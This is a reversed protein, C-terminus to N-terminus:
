LLTWRSLVSCVQGWWTYVPAHACEDLPEVRLWRVWRAGIGSWAGGYANALSGGDLSPSVMSTLTSSTKMWYSHGYPMCLNKGVTHSSIRRKPGGNKIFCSLNMKFRMLSHHFTPSMNQQVQIQSTDSMSPSTALSCTYLGCSQWVLPWLTHPMLGSCSPPSSRRRSAPPIMLQHVSSGATNKGFSIQTMYRLSYMSM